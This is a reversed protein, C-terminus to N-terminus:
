KKGRKKPPTPEEEEEDSSDSEDDWNDDDEEDEDEDEDDMDDDEDDPVPTKKGAKPKEEEEDMDEKVPTKTVEAVGIAKHEDGDDDDEITLSTGDKSINTIKCLDGYKKHTVMMGVKLGKEKATILRKGNGNKAPAEDEEEDEEKEEKKREDEGYEKWTRDNSGEDEEGNEEKKKPVGVGNLLMGMEEYCADWDEQTFESLSKDELGRPRTVMLCDELVVLESAFDDDYDEKRPIMEINVPKQFKNGGEFSDEIVQVHLTKGGEGKTHTSFNEYEEAALMKNQLLQGFFPHKNSGHPQDLIEVTKEKQGLKVINFIHRLQPKLSAALEQNATSNMKECSACRIRFGNEKAIKEFTRLPCIYPRSKGDLGPIRHQWYEREFHLMGEDARPNGWGVEYDLIDMDCFGRRDGELKAFAKGEPLKICTPEFKNQDEAWKRASAKKAKQAKERNTAM